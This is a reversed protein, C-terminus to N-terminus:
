NLNADTVEDEGYGQNEGLELKAVREELGLSRDLDDGELDVPGMEEVTEEEEYDEVFSAYEAKEADTKLLGMGPENSAALAKARKAAMKAKQKAMKKMQKPPRKKKVLIVDPIHDCRNDDAPWIYSEMDFGLASDGPKLLRGLHSLVTFQKDNVGFDSARAVTIEALLYRSEELGDISAVTAVPAAARTPPTDEGLTKAIYERMEAKKDKKKKGKRKKTTPAPAPKKATKKMQVMVADLVIFEVLDRSTAIPEIPDRYYAHETLSSEELTSPNLLHVSGAVKHCLLVQGIGGCTSVQRKKLIFLDDVCIPIVKVSWTFEFRDMGNIHGALKKSETVTVPLKGKLFNVFKMANGKSSFAFDIGDRTPKFGEVATQAKNQIILQELLFFTRKHNVHQRVQVTCLANLKTNEKHCDECFQNKLVYDVVFSQQLVVGLTDKQVDLKVKVRKSHPETWIFNADILKVKSLGPLSRLCIALLEKSEFDAFVWPPRCIRLCQKCWLLFHEKPIGETIDIKSAICNSCMSAGNYKM